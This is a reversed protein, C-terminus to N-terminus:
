TLSYNQKLLSLERDVELDIFTRNLPDLGYSTMLHEIQTELDGLGEVNPSSSLIKVLRYMCGAVGIIQLVPAAAAIATGIPPCILSIAVVGGTVVAATIAVKASSKLTDILAQEVSKEGRQVAIFNELGSFACEIGFAIGASKAAQQFVINTGAQWNIQAKADLMVQHEAPTMDQGGRARNISSIEWNGNSPDASGGNAYAQRHSWDHTQKFQYISDIGQRRINEPIYQYMQQADAWTRTEGARLGAQRIGYKLGSPLHDFIVPNPLHYPVSVGVTAIKHCNISPASGQSSAPQGSVAPLLPFQSWWALKGTEVNKAFLEVTQIGPIQIRNFFHKIRKEYIQQQPTEKTSELILSILNQHLKVKFLIKDQGIAHNLAAVLSSTHRQKAMRLLNLESMITKFIILFLVAKNLPTM